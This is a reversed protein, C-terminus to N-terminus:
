QSEQDPAATSVDIIESILVMAEQRSKKAIELPLFMDSLNYAWARYFGYAKSM